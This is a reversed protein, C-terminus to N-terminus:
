AVFQVEPFRASPGALLPQSVGCLCFEFFANVYTSVIRQMRRGSLGGAALLVRAQPPAHLADLIAPLDSFGLHETANIHLEERFGSLRAWYAASPPDQARTHVGGTMLLFPRATGRDLAPRGVIEGDLDIGCAARGDLAMVNAATAGGLSHGWVGVASANLPGRFHPIRATLTGNAQQLQDIVFRVDAQRVDVYPDLAGADTTNPLPPALVIRGDPYEVISSDYPHDLTVVVSGHSAVAAALNSYLGRPGGFGPSFILPPRSTAQYPASLHAGTALQSLTGNNFAPGITTQNFTTTLNSSTVLEAVYFAAVAASFEYFAAHGGGGGRRRAPYFVNVMLDRPQPPTAFPDTRSHDVLELPVVGVAYPGPLAPLRVAQGAAAVWTVTMLLLSRM